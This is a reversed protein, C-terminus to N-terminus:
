GVHLVKERKDMLRNHFGLPRAFAYDWASRSKQWEVWKWVALTKWSNIIHVTNQEFWSYCLCYPKSAFVYIKLNISLTRIM